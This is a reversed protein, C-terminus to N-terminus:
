AGSRSSGQNSGRNRTSNRLHKARFVVFFARYIWGSGLLSLEPVLTRTRTISSNKKQEEEARAENNLGEINKYLGQLAMMAKRPIRRNCVRDTRVSLYTIYCGGGGM